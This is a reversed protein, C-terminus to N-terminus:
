VNWDHECDTPHGSVGRLEGDREYVADLAMDTLYWEGGTTCVFDVSWMGDFEDAVREAYTNLSEEPEWLLDVDDSVDSWAQEIIDHAEARYPEVRDKDPWELRPHHCVVEGDRIFVRVEPHCTRREFTVFDLELWERLWIAGGVPIQRITHDALLESLVTNIHGRDHSAVRDMQPSKYDSRVHAEGGVHEIAGMVTPTTWEPPGDGDKEWPVAVTEPTPVDLEEVDWYWHSMKIRDDYFSVEEATHTDDLSETM